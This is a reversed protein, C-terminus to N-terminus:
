KPKRALYCVTRGPRRDIASLVWALPGFVAPHALAKTLAPRLLAPAVRSAIDGAIDAETKPAYAFPADFTRWKRVIRLGAGAIAEAYRAETFANEGGYAQHLPHSNFFADLQQPGTVVHDRLAFFAGGPKLVRAVERCFGDLNKAHHLVQRAIVLDFSADAAPIIEGAGDVVEIDLSLAQSAHVIAGRGVLESPDPEVAMTIWGDQALACSVIGNGAGIDLARGGGVGIVERVSRWEDSQYFRRVANELPPDFYCANV